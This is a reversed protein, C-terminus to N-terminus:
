EYPKDASVSFQTQLSREEFQMNPPTPKSYWNKTFSVPKSNGVFRKIEQNDDLLIFVTLIQGVNYKSVEDEDLDYDYEIHEINPFTSEIENMIPRMILCAPCWVASIRVIKM